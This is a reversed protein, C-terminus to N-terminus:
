RRKWEASTTQIYWSTIRDSSCFFDKLSNSYIPLLSPSTPPPHSSSLLLPLPPLSPLLYPPSTNILLFAIIEFNFLFLYTSLADRTWTSPFLSSNERTQRPAANSIKIFYKEWKKKREEASIFYQILELPM